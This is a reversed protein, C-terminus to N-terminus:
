HTGVAAIQSASVGLVSKAIADLAREEGQLHITRHVHSAKARPELALAPSSTELEYFKGLQTGGPKSPGDNYSNVVDGAYPDDQSRWLSNVYGKEDKPLSFEVITLVRAVPDYSGLRKAARRPGVGIKSRFAGDAKFYLVGANNDIKLREAPVKGFYEDNVISGRISEPGTEFPIAVTTAAGANFMGLIWISPLGTPRRWATSGVNTVTNVTEFAVASVGKPLDVRMAALVQSADRMRVERLVELDFTTGAYNTLQMRKKFSARDREHEVLEFPQTDLPAPTNWHELDFSAGKAFFLAFPGGEPGLWFRDEGGYANIHKQVKGSGILERNIWGYSAGDGGSATSTMVRGQYAPVVALQARGDADTLVLTEVHKKLFAVDSGFTTPGDPQRASSTTCAQLTMSLLAGLAFLKHTM